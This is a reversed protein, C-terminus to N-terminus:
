RNICRVPADGARSFSWLGCPAKAWVTASCVLVMLLVLSSIFAGFRDGKM